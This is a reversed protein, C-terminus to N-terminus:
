CLCNDPRSDESIATRVIHRYDKRTRSANSHRILNQLPSLPENIFALDEATVIGITTPWSPASLRGVQSVNPIAEQGFHLRRDEPAEAAELLGSCFSFPLHAIAQSRLLHLFAAPGFRLQHVACQVSTSM